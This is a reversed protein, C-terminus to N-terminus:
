IRSFSVQLNPIFMLLLAVSLSYVVEQFVTYLCPHPYMWVYMSVAKYDQCQRPSTQIAM